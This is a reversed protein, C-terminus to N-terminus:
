ITPTVPTYVWNTITQTSSGFGTGGTFGVFANNAHITTPINITWAHTFIASTQLDTLTMTLTTGDYTMNANIFDGSHLNIGSGSMDVAPVTPTNGNKFLGTSDPGEGANNYLDFKIALSTQITVYGLGAEPGGLANPGSNQLIFTFGDAVPNLIQFTFNNTFAQVNVPNNYFVSGAQNSGGNTLQLTTGSLAASGNLVLGTPYIGAPYNPVAPPGAVYTWSTIEQDATLGGTSATFGVYATSAHVKGPINIVFANSWSAHTVQDTITLNLITGDYTMHVAMADGSHLNIGTNTLDISPVTPTNGLTYLGTSDSGEGANNYLDFKIGVSNQITVFGLGSGAGGIATPSNDQLTFTFGDAGPNTLLFTFDTTFAQVNVPTTFFASGAANPVTNTLQLASGALAATGNLQISGASEGFGGSFNVPVVPATITYAAATTASSPFGTQIAIATLTESSTIAVPSGTYKTSGATPTTNNLTYYISAGASAGYIFVSQPGVYSGPPLSFALTGVPTVAVSVVNSTSSHFNGDGSYTAQIAYSGSSLSSPSYTATGGSGVPVSALTVGNAAFSVMGTPTSTGSNPVVVTSLTFPTGPAVTTLSTALTTAATLLSPSVTVSNATSTSLANNNDGVYVAQLADTGAPLSSATFSATGGSSPSLGLVVGNSLFAVSGTPSNGGTVTARLIVPTGTRFPGGPVTIATSTSTKTNFTSDLYGMRVTLWNTLYSVEANYTGFAEPNPWIELGQMPWRGFNNAQSQELTAAETPISALWNALVGNNKLANWQFTVDAQFSPDKFWQRYWIARQAMWPVAPSTISQYNVNGSSVDFDWIPGMYLLPNDQSKYFYDSSFMDGGDVNGMLENVIYFNVASADDFYSRWGTTPDTFTPSFLTNEATVTYNNIYSTQEPVEPTYDPDILGLPVGQPTVWVYDEDQRADIEVLYGGTIDDTADTELLENINVRHSDVKVEEILQYNGQYAGNLYLEVFLSHAAWPMLTSTGSPTPSDAPSNLYSGGIPIANALASASWDRLFTKDDYNALLVYSKSKDCVAAGKSTVYPCHLGMATLLDLSTNLKIHYPKKPMIITTNGHLHFTATDDTDSSNPLYSTQGNASTITITGPVDTTKDVIAVGNTNINVVPLNIASPAPTFSPNTVSVALTFAASTQGLGTVAVVRPTAYEVGYVQINNPNYLEQGASVTASLYLTGSTNATLTLPSVTIGSPLGTITIPIPGVYTSNGLSVPVPVNQDGPHITVTAPVTLSQAWVSAAPGLLFFVSLLFRSVFHHAPNKMPSEERGALALM